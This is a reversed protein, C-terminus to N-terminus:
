GEQGDNRVEKIWGLRGEKKCRECWPIGEKPHRRHNAECGQGRKKAYGRDRKEQKVRPM